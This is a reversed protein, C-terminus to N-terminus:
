QALTLAKDRDAAVVARQHEVRKVPGVLDARGLIEVDVIWRDAGRLQLHSFRTLMIAVFNSGDSYVSSYLFATSSSTSAFTSLRSTMAAGSGSASVVTTSRM